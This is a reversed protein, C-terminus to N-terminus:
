FQALRIETLSFKFIYALQYYDNQKLQQDKSQELFKKTKNQKDNLYQIEFM